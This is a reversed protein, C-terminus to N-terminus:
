IRTSLNTFNASGLGTCLDYGNSASYGNTGKIIDRLCNTGILPYINTNLFKSYNISALFGAWLPAAASTGGITSYTGNVYILYGTNPDANACVDPVCRKNSTTFVKNQYTGKTFYKSYGGGSGNWATESQYINNTAILSTGGVACLNPSSSPFDVGINVGDDKYGYDGSAVCITIGKSVATKFLTDYSNLTATSFYQESMGWSISIVKNNDYIAKSIANFFSTVSNPAFYVNINSNPCIGGLVEIDLYVEFDDDSLGPKNTAGDVSISKVIPKINTLGIKNWYVDLDNQRYGGGLQILGINVRNKNTIPPMNYISRLQTPTYSKIARNEFNRPNFENLKVYSNLKINPKGQYKDSVVYVDKHSSIEEILENSLDDNVSIFSNDIKKYKINNNLLIKEIIKDNNSVFISHM